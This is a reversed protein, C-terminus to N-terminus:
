FIYYDALLGIICVVATLFWYSIIVKKESMGKYNLTHHLPEVPLHIINARHVLSVIVSVIPVALSL